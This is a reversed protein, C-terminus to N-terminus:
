RNRRKLHSELLQLNKLNARFAVDMVDGVVPVAGAAMDIAINMAMRALLWKPVDLQHALYVIYGSIAASALDGIGPILGIIADLGVRINTGPITFRNDMLEALVRIQQLIQAESWLGGTRSSHRRSSDVIEPIIHINTFNM